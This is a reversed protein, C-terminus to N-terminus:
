QAPFRPDTRIADLDSDDAALKALTPDLQLAEALHELAPELRGALSELCALDYLLRPRADPKAELGDHLEAIGRETDGKQQYGYAAFAWEWASLEHAGPKGGVALVTTGAELAKAGRRVAPDRIAVITGAPADVSEDGLEFEARGTMVVYVEEHGLTKETHSELVDQGPESATYANIGFATLGFRRRIPRWRLTGPGPLSELEDIRSVEYPATM